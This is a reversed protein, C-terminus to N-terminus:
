VDLLLPIQPRESEEEARAHTALGCVLTQISRLRVNKKKKQSEVAQFEACSKRLRVRGNGRDNKTRSMKTRKSVAAVNRKGNVAESFFFV